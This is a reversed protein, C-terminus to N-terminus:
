VNEWELGKACHCTTLIIDADKASVTNNLVCREFLHVYETVKEKYQAILTRVVTYRPLERLNCEDCFSPYDLLSGAFEPFVTEPLEMKEGQPLRYLDLVHELVTFTSKFGRRGATISASGPVRRRETWFM